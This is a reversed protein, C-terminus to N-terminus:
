LNLLPPGIMAGFIGTLIVMVATLSPLGGLQESVGM